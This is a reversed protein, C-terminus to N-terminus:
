FQLDIRATYYRAPPQTLFEAANFNSGTGAYNIEPDLGRYKTWTHLNRGALTLSLGRLRFQEAFHQPAGLTFSLERLKVFSADQIYGAIATNGGNVRAVAAAQDELTASPDQIGQGNSRTARFEETSNFLKNGGRYDLLGSIRFVKFIEINTQFSAEKNPFPSGVYVATDSTFVIEGPQIVNDGNADSYTYPRAFYAGLPRGPTHRQSAGGLGFIIPTIGTGLETLENHIRSTTFTADWRLRSMDIVRGRVLLETGKNQVSGLNQRRTATLGLSPSLPVNVLADRSKKNFYTFETALRDGFLGTDFGMELETSKEPRLEPNGAGGITFGPVSGSSYTVAVPSLYQLADLTGPRLGSAGYASRLRLSSLFSLKPFFPEESVVWSGTLSPYYVWGFDTGFASNRDGRVAGTVFFRDNLGLQEQVYTGVTRVQFNSEGITFRSSTGTLSFTGPLLVSGTSRTWRSIEESYQFGASTMTTLRRSLDFSATANANATYNSAFTRYTDRYGQLYTTNYPVQNAPVTEADFTGIHDIGAAGNVSLWGLPRYHAETSALFRDVYSHTDINAIQRPTIGFGFGATTSDFRFRTSLLAGSVVGLANNDNQPLRTDSNIYGTSVTVDFQQTLNARLNARLSTRDLTSLDYKYVGGEDERDASLFFTVQESGGTASAGYKNRPGTRFPTSRPDLLPNFSVVSDLRVSQVRTTSTAGFIYSQAYALDTGQVGM